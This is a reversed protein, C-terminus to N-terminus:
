RIRRTDDVGDNVKFTFSAVAAGYANPVPTYKLVGIRAAPVAQNATVPTGDLALAGTAPLSVIKVSSLTDGSDEDTFAFDASSFTYDTDETATVTKNASTPATNAVIVGGAPWNLLDVAEKEGGDDGYEFSVDLQKGLDSTVLTYTTLSGLGLGSGSHFWNIDFGSAPLGDADMVASYDLTLTAGIKPQGLIALQGTPADNVATVDITMTSVAVSDDAGDNVKFTFSAVAAGYANPVPTYKLVGIRAAPVAQNATVPTGDLALAGTAPLSVIKVSSLTDGSDEDTFAFDASSFTYDTDETATVTKNASTPATNAVIVGGAPWNLLDVAEKEGGDDGYEFSVDLQKRDSTVLTYTTLSGLGLGSGSHFWNIDFGSAPLGDADMVASYDLTLTAGIKPQGLIALQGTPADNVATVDITMTSVAVSDDAGDNVRFTFSAAAAGHDNPVPTYKLAGLQAAPVTYPLEGSGIATSSLTLAGAAPLSVIKVSSLTDGADEDTFAFDASSFTYDTDETATVTNNASTPANNNAATGTATVTATDTHPNVGTSGTKSVGTVTLTFTLETDAALPPITVTTTSSTASGFTVTVGNAPTTLAWSYDVNAGWPGGDSSAGNLVVTGGAAPVTGNDPLAVATPEFFAGPNEALEVVTLSTVAKLVGAPLTALRNSALGLITLSTLDDFVGAPLTALRNTGLYLKELATLDDFVGAPLTTLRNRWLFLEQLSTLSGFVGAPLTALENRQLRLHTLSTLGYFDGAALASISSRQLDLTGTIAGLHNNTVDGCDSIGTIRALIADRVAQTRLCISDRVTIDFEDSVSGGNGYSATVKVSVTEVDAPTGSFTRMDPTFTLWTPLASDDPKTAMYTLENVGADSFTTDPFTYNFATGIEAAQDPIATIM